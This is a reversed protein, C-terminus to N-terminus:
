IPVTNLTNDIQENWYKKQNENSQLSEPYIVHIPEHAPGTRCAQQRQPHVSIISTADGPHPTEGCDQRREQMQRAAEGSAM